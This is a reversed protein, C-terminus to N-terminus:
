FCWRAHFKSLSRACPLKQMLNKELRLTKRRKGTLRAARPLLERVGITAITLQVQM